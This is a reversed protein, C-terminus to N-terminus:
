ALVQSASAPPAGPKTTTTKLCSRAIYGLSAEFEPYAQKLRKFVVPSDQTQPWTTLGQGGLFFSQLVPVLPLAGAKCAFARLQFGLGV